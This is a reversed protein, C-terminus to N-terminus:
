NSRLNKYLSDVRKQVTEEDVKFFQAIETVYYDTRSTFNLIDVRAPKDDISYFILSNKNEGESPNVIDFTFNRDYLSLTDVDGGKYLNNCYVALLTKM